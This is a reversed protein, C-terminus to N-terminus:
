VDALGTAQMTAVARQLLERSQLEGETNSRSWACAVGAENAVYMDTGQYLEGGPKTARADPRAIFLGAGRLFDSSNAHMQTHWSLRAPATSGPLFGALVGRSVGPVPLTPFRRHLAVPDEVVWGLESGHRVLADLGSGRNTHVFSPYTAPHAAPDFPGLADSFAGSHWQSRGLEVVVASAHAALTILHDLRAPDAVFGNVTLSLAGHAYRLSVYRSIQALSPGLHTDLYQHVAPPLSAEPDLMRAPDNAHYVCADTRIGLGPGNPGLAPVERNAFSSSLITIPPLLAAEPVQLKVSTTPTWMTHQDGFPDDTRQPNNFLKFGKTGRNIRLEHWTGMAPRKNEYGLSVEMLEHQLAGYRAPALEGRLFNFVFDGSRPNLGGFHSDLARGVFDLGRSAAYETLNSTPAGQRAEAADEPAIAGVNFM